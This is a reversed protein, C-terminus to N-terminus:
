TTREHNDGIEIDQPMVQLVYGSPLQVILDCDNIAIVPVTGTVYGEEALFYSNLRNLAGLGVGHRLRVNDGVSLENM